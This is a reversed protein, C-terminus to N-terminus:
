GGPTLHFPATMAPAKAAAGLLPLGLLQETTRLLSYHTLPRAYRTGAPTTASVVITPVLQNSHHDDEDWTVFVVTQGTRYSPQHLITPLFRSLWADGSRVQSATDSGCPSEHMDHCLNPTVFTFRATLKTAGSLPVDQQACQAAITTYYAAPNHRVAYLGSSAAACPSPMSEELARWGAGLQSFISPVSLPHQSPDGDDSIGQTSGSTMAVYNPLSPHAEAHFNTAVGCRKALLNLYTADPSGIVQDYAKNEFVIWVVHRVPVPKKVTGCPAGRPAVGASSVQSSAAVLAAAALLTVLARSM